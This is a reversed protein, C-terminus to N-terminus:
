KAELYKEDLADSYDGAAAIPSLIQDSNKAIFSGGAIVSCDPHDLEVRFMNIRHHGQSIMAEGLHVAGFKYVIIVPGHDRHEINLPRGKGTGRIDEVISGIRSGEFSCIPLACTQVGTVCHDRIGDEAQFFFFVFCLM